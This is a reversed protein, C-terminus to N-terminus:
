SRTLSGCMLLGKPTVAEQETIGKPTVAEQETIGLLLTCATARLGWVLTCFPGWFECKEDRKPNIFIKPVQSGM